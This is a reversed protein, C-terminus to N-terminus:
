NEGAKDNMIIGFQEPKGRDAPSKAEHMESAKVDPQIKQEEKEFAKDVVIPEGIHIGLADAGLVNPAVEDKSEGVSDAKLMVDPKAQLNEAQVDQM